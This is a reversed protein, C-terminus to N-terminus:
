AAFFHWLGAVLLLASTGCLLMLQTWFMPVEARKSRKVFRIADYIGWLGAIVLVADLVDFQTELPM